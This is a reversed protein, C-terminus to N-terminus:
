LYNVLVTSESVALVLSVVEEVGEINFASDSPFDPIANVGVGEHEFFM